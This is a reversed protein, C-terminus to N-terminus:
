KQRRFAIDQVISARIRDSISAEKADLSASLAPRPLLIRTSTPLAGKGRKKVGSKGGEAGRELFLGYYAENIRGGQGSKFMTAKVSRRLLGTVTVPSQGPASAQYRGARYSRYTSGGSGRYTRGAGAKKLLRKRTDAAIEALAGRMIARLKRKEYILVAHPPDVSVALRFSM